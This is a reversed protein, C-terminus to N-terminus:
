KKGAPLVKPLVGPMKADTLKAKAAVDAPVNLDSESELKRGSFSIELTSGNIIELLGKEDEATMKQKKLLSTLAKRMQTTLNAHLDTLMHEKRDITVTYEIDGMSQLVKKIQATDKAAKKDKKDNKDLELLQILYPSFKKGDMTVLYSQKSGESSGLKVDKTLTMLDVALARDVAQDVTKKQETKEAVAKEWSKDAKQVYVTLDKDSEQMYFASQEISSPAGPVIMEMALTGKAAMKPEVNFSLSGKYCLSLLPSSLDMDFAMTGKNYEALSALDKSLQAKADVVAAQQVAPAQEAALVPLATGGFTLSVALGAAALFKKGKMM